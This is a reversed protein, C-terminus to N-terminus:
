DKPAVEGRHPLVAFGAATQTLCSAIVYYEVQFLRFLPQFVNSFSYTLIVFLLYVLFSKTERRHRNLVPMERRFRHTSSDILSCIRHYMARHTSDDSSEVSRYANKVGITSRQCSLERGNDTESNSRTATTAFHKLWTMMLNSQSSTSRTPRAILRTFSQTLIRQSRMRTPIRTFLLQNVPCTSRRVTKQCRSIDYSSWEAMQM